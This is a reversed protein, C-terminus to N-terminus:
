IIHLTIHRLFAYYWGGSETTLGLSIGSAVPSSRKYRNGYPKVPSFKMQDMFSSEACGVPKSPTLCM